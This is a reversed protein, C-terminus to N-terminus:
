LGLRKADAEIEAREREDMTLLTYFSTVDTVERVTADPPLRDLAHRLSIAEVFYSTDVCVIRFLQIVGNAKM